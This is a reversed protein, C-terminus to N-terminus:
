SQNLKFDLVVELGAQPVPKGDKYQPKYKWKSLARRAAQNFIRKPEADIVQIDTVSGSADISFILKVWGEIGQQAANAPYKPQMRVIPRAGMDSMNIQSFDQKGLGTTPPTFQTFQTDEGLGDVPDIDPTQPKPKQVPPEIPPLTKKTITKDEDPAFSLTFIPIAEPKEVIQGEFRTLKDMVVFIGFTMLAALVVAGLIRQNFFVSKSTQAPYYM